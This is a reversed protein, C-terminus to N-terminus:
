YDSNDESSWATDDDDDDCANKEDQRRVRLCCISQRDKHSNSM